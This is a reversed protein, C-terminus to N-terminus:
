PAMTFGQGFIEGTGVSKHGDLTGVFRQREVRLTMMWEGPAMLMANSLPVPVRGCMDNHCGTMPTDGAVQTEFGMVPLIEDSDQARAAPVALLVGVLPLTRVCPSRLPACRLVRAGRPDLM